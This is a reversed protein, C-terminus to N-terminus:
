IGLTDREKHARLKNLRSHIRSVFKRRNRGDIEEHLLKELITVDVTSMIFENLQDWTRLVPNNIPKKMTKETGPGM